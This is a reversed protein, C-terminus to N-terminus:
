ESTTEIVPYFLPPPDSQEFAAIDNINIVENEDCCGDVVRYRYLSNLDPDTSSNKGNNLTFLNNAIVLTDTNDANVQVTGNLNADGLRGVIVVNRVAEMKAGTITDTFTYTMEYVGPVIALNGLETFAHQEAVDEVTIEVAMSNLRKFNPVSGPNNAPDNTFTRVSITRTVRELDEQNLRQGLSNIAAYGPDLSAERAYLVASEADLDCDAGDDWASISYYMGQYLRTTQFDKLAAEKGEDDLSTDAMIRGAPTNGYNLTLSPQVMRLIHVQYTLTDQVFGTPATVKISFDNTSAEEAPELNVTYTYGSASTGTGILKTENQEVSVAAGAMAPQFVLQAQKTEADVRFYYELTDRGFEASTPIQELLTDGELPSYEIEENKLALSKLTADTSTAWKAVYSVDMGGMIFTKIPGSDGESYTGSGDIDIYWNEFSANEKEQFDVGAAPVTIAADVATKKAIPGDVGNDPYFYATHSEPAKGISMYIIADASIEEFSDSGQSTKQYWNQIEYAVAYLDTVTIEVRYQKNEELNEQEVPTPNSGLYYKVNYQVGKSWELTENDGRFQLSIDYPGESKFETEYTPNTDLIYVDVSQKVEPAEITYEIAEYQPASDGVWLIDEYPSGKPFNLGWIIWEGAAIPLEETFVKNWYLTYDFDVGRTLGTIQEIKTGDTEVKWLEIEPYHAQGDFSFATVAEEALVPMVYIEDDTETATESSFLDASLAFASTCCFVLAATLLLARKWIRHNRIHRM